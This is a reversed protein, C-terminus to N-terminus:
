QPSTEILCRSGWVLRRGRSEWMSAGTVLVLAVPPSRLELRHAEPERDSSYNDRGGDCPRAPTIETTESFGRQPEQYTRTTRDRDVGGDQGVLVDRSRALAQGFAWLRPM